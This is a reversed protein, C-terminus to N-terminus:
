VEEEAYGADELDESAEGDEPQELDITEEPKGPLRAAAECVDLKGTVVDAILRTRYERLLTIERRARDIATDIDEVGSGIAEAIRDQEQRPPVPVRLSRVVESNINPQGGGYGQEILRPRAMNVVAQFYEVNSGIESEALVCCAQNTCAEMTLVGTKGITAGYMAVLLSGPPYVRLASVEKLARRNVTRKTTLLAGDTLDGTMVWPIGGGYYRDGSPTTGSGHRRFLSSLKRVEWCEPVDGLWDVGSPKLPVGPDLGRTVACHIIAQKQEELLGILKQKARILRNVRRAHADLFDAIAKQEEPLPFVSSMQKFEHWYLRNRDKVIGHSYKDVEAMYAATRFLYSFFRPETDPFPQAVVYAPSVLGDVPAVGVAGQWMRMMNYAIDGMAARKYAGRDSMVQKRTTNEFDRVRVGTNLSVELIPLASFGTQNRQEFLRGNRRVEWHEPVEGLWEVGSDKMVPYPNLDAIM